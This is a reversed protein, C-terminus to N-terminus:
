RSCGVGNGDGYGLVADAICYTLDRLDKASTEDFESRYLLREAIVQALRDRDPIWEDLIASEPIPVLRNCHSWDLRGEVVDHFIHPRGQAETPFGAGDDPTQALLVWRVAPVPMMNLDEASL